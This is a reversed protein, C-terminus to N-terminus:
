LVAAMLFLFHLFFLRYTCYAKYNDKPTFRVARAVLVAGLAAAGAGIGAAIWKAKKGM